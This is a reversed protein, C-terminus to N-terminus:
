RPRRARTRAGLTRARSRIRPCSPSGSRGGAASRRARSRATSPCGSGQLEQVGEGAGAAIVLEDGELLALEVVRADILARSRKAVLELM